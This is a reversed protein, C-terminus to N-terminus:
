CTVIAAHNVFTEFAAQVEHFIVFVDVRLGKHVPTIAEQIHHVCHVFCLSNGALDFARVEVNCSARHFGHIFTSLKGAIQAADNDHDIQDNAVGGDLRHGFPAALIVHDHVHVACTVAGVCTLFVM